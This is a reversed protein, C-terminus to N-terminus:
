FSIGFGLEYARYSKEGFKYATFLSLNNIFYKEARAFEIGLRIEEYFNIYQEYGFFRTDIWSVTAYLNPNLYYNATIGNKAGIASLEYPITLNYGDLYSEIDIQPIKYYGFDNVMVLKLEKVSTQYETWLGGHVNWMPAVTAFDISGAIGARAGLAVRMDIIKNKYAGLVLTTGFGIDGSISGAYDVAAIMANFALRSTDNFDIDFGLPITLSQISQRVGYMDEVSHYTYTPRFAYDYMISNYSYDQNRYLFSTPNGAIPDFPTSKVAIENITKLLDTIVSFDLDEMSLGASGFLDTALSDIVDDIVSGSGSAIITDGVKLTAATVNSGDDETVLTIPVGRYNITIIAAKDAVFGGIYEQLGAYNNGDSFYEILDLFSNFYLKDTSAGAQEVSLDILAAKANVSTFCLMFSLVLIKVIKKM